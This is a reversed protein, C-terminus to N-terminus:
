KLLQKMTAIEGRVADAREGQPEVRLFDEWAVIAGKLDKKDNALVVGINYRSNKHAPDQRAAERFEKLARDYDGISRCMIGLDTRVDANKPDIALSREYADIAKKYQQADFYANGLAELLKANKPEREIAKELERIQQGTPAGTQPPAVTPGHERTTGQDRVSFRIGTVAGIIFGLLFAIVILLIARDRHM